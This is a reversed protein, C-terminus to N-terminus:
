VYQLRTGAERTRYQRRQGYVCFYIGTYIGDVEGSPQRLVVVLVTHEACVDVWRLTAQSYRRSPMSETVGGVSGTVCMLLTSARVGDGYSEQCTFMKARSCMDARVCM